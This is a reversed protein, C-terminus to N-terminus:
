DVSAELGTVVVQVVDGLVDLVELVELVALVAFVVPVVVDLAEEVTFDDEVGVVLEDDKLDLEEECLEESELEESELEESKLLTVPTWGTADSAMGWCVLTARDDVGTGTVVTTTFPLVMAVFVDLAIFTVVIAFVM